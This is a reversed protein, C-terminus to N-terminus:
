KDAYNGELTFCENWHKQLKEIGKKRLSEDKSEFYAETEAMVEENSGFRKGQLVIKLDAFHWYDSPTLDRSYPPHPLLEFNLRNLKVMMKM